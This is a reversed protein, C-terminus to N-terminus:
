ADGEPAWEALATEIDIRTTLADFFAEMTAFDRRSRTEIVCQTIIFMTIDDLLQNRWALHAKAKRAQLKYLAKLEDDDSLSQLTESRFLRMFEKLTSVAAVVRGQAIISRSANGIYTALQADTFERLPANSVFRPRRRPRLRADNRMVPVAAPLRLARISVFPTERPKM